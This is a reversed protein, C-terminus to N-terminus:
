NSACHNRKIIAVRMLHVSPITLELINVSMSEILVILVIDPRSLSTSISTPITAPSEFQWPPGPGELKDTPGELKDTPGELKDTPGGLCKYLVGHGSNGTGM